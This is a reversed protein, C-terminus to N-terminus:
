DGGKKKSKIFYYLSWPQERLQKWCWDGSEMCYHYRKPEPLGQVKFGTSLYTHTYYITQIEVPKKM